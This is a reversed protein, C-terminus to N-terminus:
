CQCYSSDEFFQRAELISITLDNDSCIEPRQNSIQDLVSRSTSFALQKPYPLPALENSLMSVVDSMTPRDAASEQVCLLGIHIYRLLINSSSIDELVPDKVEQERGNKWLDWAYGLLNLSDSNYFGTNKKGSLIELLLVGFSFVDSKVSFLGVLAYEPSMYGNSELVFGIM